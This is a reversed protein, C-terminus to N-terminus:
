FLNLDETIEETTCGFIFQVQAMSDARVENCTNSCLEMMQNNILRYGDLCGATDPTSHGVLIKKGDSFTILPAVKNPDVTQTGDASTPPIEFKCGSIQSMVANLGNRLALSFDPDQTMDMHCYPGNDSYPNCDGRATDGMFAAMSLWPRMDESGPSGVVFTKVGMNFAYDVAQVVEDGDLNSLRGNPNWCNRYLTPMGDTILLMYPEGPVAMQEPSLVTHELVYYYADATPTGRGLEAQALRERLLARHTGAENPGLPAMPTEAATNLCVSPDVPETSVEDNIMNPYFMLGVSTNPPLGGGNALGPVAEILADRTVEWKTRGTGRAASNMSSSVDIVLELKTPYIEPEFAWANCASQAIRAAEADSIQRNPNSLFPSSTTSTGGGNAPTSTSTSAGVAATSASTSGGDGSTDTTRTSKTSSSGGENGSDDDDDDAASGCAIAAVIGLLGFFVKKAM